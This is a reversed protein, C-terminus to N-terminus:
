YLQEIVDVREHLLAVAMILFDLKARDQEELTKAVLMKAQLENQAKAFEDQLKENM